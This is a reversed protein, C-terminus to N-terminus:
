SRRSMESHLWNLVTTATVSPTRCELYRTKLAKADESTIRGAQLLTDVHDLAAQLWPNSRSEPALALLTVTIETTVGKVDHKITASTARKWDIGNQELVSQVEPLLGTAYAM